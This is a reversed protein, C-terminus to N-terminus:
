TARINLIESLQTSHQVFTWYKLCNRAINCSHETSWVKKADKLVYIEQYWSLLPGPSGWSDPKKYFFLRFWTRQELRETLWYGILASFVVESLHQKGDVSTISLRSFIWAHRHLNLTAEHLRAENFDVMNRVFIFDYVKTVSFSIKPGRGNHYHGHVWPLYM